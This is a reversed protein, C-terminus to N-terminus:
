GTKGALSYHIVAYGTIYMIIRYHMSWHQTIRRCPVISTFVFIYDLDRGWFVFWEGYFSACVRRGSKMFSDECWARARAIRPARSRRLALSAYELAHVQQKRTSRPARFRATPVASARALSKHRTIETSALTNTLTPRKCAIPGGSAASM